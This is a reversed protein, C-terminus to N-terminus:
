KVALSFDSSALIILVASRSALVIKGLGDSTMSCRMKDLARLRSVVSMLGTMAGSVRGDPGNRVM